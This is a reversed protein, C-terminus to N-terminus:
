QKFNLILLIIGIMKDKDEPRSEAILITLTALTEPNIKSRFNYGIKQLFWVFIKWQM